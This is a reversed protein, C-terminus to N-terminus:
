TGNHFPYWYQCGATVPSFPKAEVGIAGELLELRRAQITDSAPM